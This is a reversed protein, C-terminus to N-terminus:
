LITVLCRDGLNQPLSSCSITTKTEKGYGVVKSIKAAQEEHLAIKKTKTSNLSITVVCLDGLDQGLVSCKVKAKRTIKKGVVSVFVESQEDHFVIVNKKVGEPMKTPKPLVGQQALANMSTACILILVIKKM